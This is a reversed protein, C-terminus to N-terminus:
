KEWLDTSLYKLGSDCILVAITGGIHQPRQLLELAGAVNAGASFGAFIGEFRALDRACQIAQEDTVQLYGDILDRTTTDDPDNTEFEVLQGEANIQLHQLNPLENMVYGGGQIRHNPQTVEQGALVAAGVPEVVYCQVSSSTSTSSQETTSSEATSAQREPNTRRCQEKFYAACGGLSGGTGVFDCFATISGGSAQWMEPATELFHARANALRTFQNARFAQRENTIRQAVQEVLQLDEGSVQGSVSSSSSTTSSSCNQQQQQLQPVIVVEAGLARMMRAREMSNGASMVAVLPHGLTACVIALGTGTNGSTLEVVTQGPQLDGTAIAELLLHKAIRDKKSGGPNLYELKALIRGQIKYHRTLRDLAVLPTKGIAATVDPLIGSGAFSAIPHSPESGMTGVPDNTMTTKHLLFFLLQQQDTTEEKAL